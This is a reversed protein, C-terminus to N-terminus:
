ITLVQSKKKKEKKGTKEQASECETFQTKSAECKGRARMCMRSIHDITKYKNILSKQNNAIIKDKNM